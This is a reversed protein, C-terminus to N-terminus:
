MNDPNTRRPIEIGGKIDNYEKLADNVSVFVDHSIHSNILVM